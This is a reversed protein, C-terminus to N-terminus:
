AQPTVHNAHHDPHGTHDHTDEVVAGWLESGSGAARSQLDVIAGEPLERVRKTLNSITTRAGGKSGFEGMKYFKGMEGQGARVGDVLEHVKDVWGSRKKKSPTKLDEEDVGVTFDIGAKNKEATAEMKALWTGADTNTTM